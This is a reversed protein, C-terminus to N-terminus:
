QFTDTYKGEQFIIVKQGAKTTAVIELDQTGVMFDVHVHSQNMGRELLDESTAELGGEICEAYSDGIAFHCSANEDILTEYFTKHMLSIPSGYPVLAIEGLYRSGEDTNLISELVDKGVEADYDVIRGEKFEFWFSDVMAGNHNLPMSAYLRGNVGLRHPASFVEETPINPFYYVGNVLSSGGGEFIYHDPLKVDLDTGLHNSYHLSEIDMANLRKTIRQFDAKRELWDEEIRAVKFIDNWLHYVADAENMDPYVKTAWVSTSVAGICWQNKMHDLRDHYEKTAQRMLKQYTAMRKQNVDAMLTPDDGVLILYCAGQESTMNYFDSEYSPVDLFTDEVSKLYKQHTIQQDEYRVIVNAAGRGYAKEVVIRVFEYSEVPARVVVVQGKQVNLGYKILVDAYQNLQKM